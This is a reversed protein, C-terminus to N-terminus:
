CWNTVVLFTQNVTPQSEVIIQTYVTSDCGTASTFVETLGTTANYTNGNYCRQRMRCHKPDYISFQLCHNTNWCNLRMRQYTFTNGLTTSSTYVTGNFVVQDCGEIVQGINYSPFIDIATIVISDCGQATTLNRHAYNTRYLYDWQLTPIVDSFSQNTTVPPIVM